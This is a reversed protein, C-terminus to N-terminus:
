MNAKRARFGQLSCNQVLQLRTLVANQFIPRRTNKGPIYQRLCQFYMVGIPALQLSEIEKLFPLFILLVSM